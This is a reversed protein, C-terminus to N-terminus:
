CPGGGLVRFFAEIDADTGVDGDANFDPSACTPCCSGGLCAFFAEIDADTGYDGDNNFDASNLVIMAPDSIATGCGNTVLCDFFSAADASSAWPLTYSPSTAGPILVPPDGERWQYSLPATGSAAITFAVPGHECGLQLPAPQSTISPANCTHVLRWTEGYYQGVNSTGGHLVTMGRVNDYVMAADSRASPSTWTGNWDPVLRGWTQGDWSWTGVFWSQYTPNFGGFIVVAGLVPDFAMSQWGRAGPGNHSQADADRQVWASGDWEWLDDYTTNWLSNFGGFLVTVGRAPDYAIRHGRRSPPGVVQTGAGARLTWATGNWGYTSLGPDPIGCCEPDSDPIEITVHRVSDYVMPGIPTNSYQQRLAWANGDWEWTSYGLYLVAVGRDSDFAMGQPNLLDHFGSLDPGAVTRRTWHTGNYTWTTGDSSDFLVTVGRVSDFTMSYPWTAPGAIVQQVWRVDDAMATSCVAALAVLVSTVVVGVAKRISGDM